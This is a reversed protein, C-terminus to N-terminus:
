PSARLFRVVEQATDQAHAICAALSPGRLYNGTLFLGPVAGLANRIRALREAHGLNYQPLARPWRRLFRTVPEGRIGLIPRLEEAVLALLEDDRKDLVDPNTAGGVFTTLNAGGEPARHAFLSSCFITGLIALGAERPVLFGFGDLSHAIQERRYGLGVVAVPAYEIAELAGANGDPITRLLRAAASADTAVVVADASIAEHTDDRHVVLDFRSAGSDMRVTLSAVRTGSHVENALQQRLADVLASLGSSFSTLAPKHAPGKPRSKIAGRLISGHEREWEYLFPFASRVSLREPDGAHIGSVLPGVMNELLDNGFKRRVFAAVSEDPEPPQTRRLPESFIRWKTRASLLPTKVLHPPALPARHLTGKYLIFRAANRKGQLVETQLGLDTVLSDTEPSSLFSQPGAEFQCGDQLCTDIVGGLRASQEFLCFQLGAQRLFYACSLGSIGGGILVIQLHKNV